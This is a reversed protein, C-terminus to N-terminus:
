KENIISTFLFCILELLVQAADKLAQASNSSPALQKNSKLNFSVQSGDFM